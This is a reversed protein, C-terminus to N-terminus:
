SDESAAHLLEEAKAKLWTSLTLADTPSMVVGVQKLRVMRISKDDPLGVPRLEGLTGDSKIVGEVTEPYDISETYLDFRLVGQATPGGIAGSAHVVQFGQWDAYRFTIRGEDPM